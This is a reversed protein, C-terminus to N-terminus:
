PKKNELLFVWIILEDLSIRKGNAVQNVYQRTVGLRKSIYSQMKPKKLESQLFAFGLEITNEAQVLENMM